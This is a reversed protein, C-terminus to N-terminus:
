LAKYAELLKPAPDLITLVCESTLFLDRQSSFRPFPKM